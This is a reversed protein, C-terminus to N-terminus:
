RSLGRDWGDVLLLYKRSNDGEIGNENLTKDILLQISQDDSKLEALSVLIPLVKDEAYTDVDCYTLAAKQMLTTKGSGMEGDLLTISQKKIAGFITATKKKKPTSNAVYNYDTKKVLQQELEYGELSAISFTANDRANRIYEGTKALYTAVGVDVEGAYEPMHRSILEAIQNVNYFLVSILKKEAFYDQANKSITSSCMVWVENLIVRKNGNIVRPMTQCESIQRDVDTSGQTIKGIKAVIGIHYERQLESDYRVLVFDAGFERTGHQHEVHTISPLKLFLNNLVPHFDVVENEIKKLKALIIDYSM